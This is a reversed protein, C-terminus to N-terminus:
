ITGALIAARGHYKHPGYTQLSGPEGIGRRGYWVM